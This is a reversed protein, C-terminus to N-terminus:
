KNTKGITQAERTVLPVIRREIVPALARAYSDTIHGGDHYVIVGNRVPPCVDKDCIYDSLDLMSAFPLGEIAEKTAQFIENHVARTRAVACSTPGLNRSAAQSLCKIIDGMGPTDHLSLIPIGAEVFHTGTARTGDKWQQLSLRTAGVHGDANGLIVLAPKLEIIRALASERWASCEPYSRKLTWVDITIRATLCGQKTYAILRWGQKNAIIEFASFWQAAKSDGFLVITTASTKNGFTCENLREEAINLFCASDMRPEDNAAATIPEQQPTHAEHVASLRATGSIGGSVLTFAAALCLTAVPRVRLYGSFRIPNEILAHSVAAIGLSLGAFMLRGPLELHPMAILAFVLVPWHWLYWSYSLRGILQLPSASLLWWPASAGSILVAATGLVPLLAASPFLTESNFLVACAGIVVLGLIGLIGHSAVRQRVYTAPMLSALGGIAFEWARAPLAFFAAPPDVASLWLCGAFSAASIALMAAALARKSRFAWLVLFIVVPWVLYFQEEVALTWTHLFPNTDSAPGFYNLAQRQFLINSAYLAAAFGARAVAQQELPTLVMSGVFITVILTLTSAPLLRRARRAYFGLFSLRGTSEIESVLLHTILYGSIVFFVDVGIFGGQLIPIGAHFGVVLIIAIARLAEIDPRFRRKERIAASIMGHATATSEISM